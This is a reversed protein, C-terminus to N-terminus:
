SKSTPQPLEAELLFVQLAPLLDEHLRQFRQEQEATFHGGAAPGPEGLIRAMDLEYYTSDGYPRKPDMFLGEWSAARLLTLHERRLEFSVRLQALDPRDPPLLADGAALGPLPNDYAYSGPELRGHELLYALAAPLGELLQGVKQQDAPTPPDGISIGARRALDPLLALEEKDMLLPSPLVAPAGAEVPSWVVVSQRLLKLLQADPMEPPTGRLIPSTSAMALTATALLWRM